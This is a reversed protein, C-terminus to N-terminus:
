ESYLTALFLYEIKSETSANKGCLRFNSIELNENRGIDVYILQSILKHSFVHLNSGFRKLDELMQKDKLKSDIEDM